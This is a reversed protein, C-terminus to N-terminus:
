MGEENCYRHKGSSGMHCIEVNTFWEKHDCMYEVLYTPESMSHALFMRSNAPVKKLADEASMIRSEYVEKWSM